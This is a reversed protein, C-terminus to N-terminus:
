LQTFCHNTFLNSPIIGIIKGRFLKYIFETTIMDYKSYAGESNYVIIGKFLKDYEWFLTYDGDIEGWPILGPVNPFFNFSYGIGDVEEGRPLIIRNNRSFRKVLMDSLHTINDSRKHNMYQESTKKHMSFINVYENLSYPNYVMLCNNFLGTGYLEILDIYDKPFDIELENKYSLPKNNEFPKNPPTVIEKLKELYM